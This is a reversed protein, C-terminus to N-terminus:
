FGKLKRFTPIDSLKTCFVFVEWNNTKVVPMSTSKKIVVAKLKKIM